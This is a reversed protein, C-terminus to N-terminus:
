KNLITFIVKFTTGDDKMKVYGKHNAAIQKIIKIGLGHNHADEKTTHMNNTLPHIDKNKSNVLTLIWVGKKAASTIQVFPDPDNSMAAAEIGNDLLNGLLTVLEPENMSSDPLVSLKSSFSIGLTECRKYKNYLLADVINNGSNIKLILKACDDICTQHLSKNKDYNAENNDIANIIGDIQSIIKEADDYFNFIDNMYQDQTKIHALLANNEKKISKSSALMAVFIILCAALLICCAIIYKTEFDM